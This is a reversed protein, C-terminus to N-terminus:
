AASRRLCLRTSTPLRAGFGSDARPPVLGFTGQTAVVDIRAGALAALTTIALDDASLARADILTHEIGTHSARELAGCPRDAVVLAVRAGRDREGNFADILSQLSRFLTTYPSCPPRPHAVLVPPL